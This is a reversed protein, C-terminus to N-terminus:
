PTIGGAVLADFEAASRQRVQYRHLDLPAPMEREIERRVEDSSLVGAQMVKEAARGVADLGNERALLLVKVLERNAEEPHQDLMRRHFQRLSQPLEAQRYPKANPLAGPKKLLGDLYHDLECV